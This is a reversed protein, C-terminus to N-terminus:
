QSLMCSDNILSAYSVVLTAWPPNVEKKLQLSLTWLFHKNIRKYRLMCDNTSYNKTLGVLPANGEESNDSGFDTKWIKSWHAADVDMCPKAHTACVMIADLDVDGLKQTM